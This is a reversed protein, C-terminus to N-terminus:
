SKSNESLIDKILMHYPILLFNEKGVVKCRIDICWRTVHECYTGFEAWPEVHGKTRVFKEIFDDQIPIKEYNVLFNKASFAVDLPDRVLYIIKGSHKLVELDFKDPLLHTKYVSNKEFKSRNSTLNPVIDHFAAYAHHDSPKLLASIVQRLLRSGSRPYSVLWAFPSGKILRM